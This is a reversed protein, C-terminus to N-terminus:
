NMLANPISITEVDALNLNISCTSTKGMCTLDVKNCAVKYSIGESLNPHFICSSGSGVQNKFTFDKEFSWHASSCKFASTWSLCGWIGWFNLCQTFYDFCLFLIGYDVFRM